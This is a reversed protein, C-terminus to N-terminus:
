IFENNKYHNIIAAATKLAGDPNKWYIREIEARKNNSACNIDINDVAQVLQKKSTCVASAFKEYFCTEENHFRWIILNDSEYLAKGLLASRHGVYITTSPLDGPKSLYTVNHKNLIQYLSKDSRPHLKIYLKTNKDVAEAFASLFEIFDGKKVTGDEVLVNAIYCIAPEKSTGATYGDLDHDGILKIQESRYGIQNKYYDEWYSGMTLIYDCLLPPSFFKAIMHTINKREKLMKFMLNGFSKQAYHCMQFLIKLYSFTKKWYGLLISTINRLTLDNINMGDFMVGEQIMITKINRRHAHLIFELDPVRGNTFVILKVQHGILFDDINKISNRHYFYDIKTIEIDSPMEICVAGIKIEANEEKLHDAIKFAFKRLDVLPREFFLIDIKESTDNQKM